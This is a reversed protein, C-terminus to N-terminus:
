LAIEPNMLLKKLYVHMVKNNNDICCILFYDKTGRGEGAGKYGSWSAFM